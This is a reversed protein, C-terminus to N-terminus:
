YYMNQINPLSGSKSEKKLYSYMKDKLYVIEVEVINTLNDVWGYVLIFYMCEIDVEM